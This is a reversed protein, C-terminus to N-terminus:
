IILRRSPTHLWLASGAVPNPEHLVVCDARERWLRLPLSPCLPVSAVVGLAAARVVRVGEIREEVTRSSVNAAVVVCEWEGATGGSLTQAFAEVGGPVPPYFKAGHVVKM